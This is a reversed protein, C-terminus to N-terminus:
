HYQHLEILILAFGIILLIITGGIYNTLINIRNVIEKTLSIMLDPEPEEEPVSQEEPPEPIAV